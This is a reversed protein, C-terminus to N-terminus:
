VLGARIALNKLGAQKSMDYDGCNFVANSESAQVAWTIYTNDARHCLIISGIIAVVKCNLQDARAAVAAINTITPNAM